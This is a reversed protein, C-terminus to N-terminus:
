VSRPCLPQIKARAQDGSPERTAEAPLSLTTRTHDGLVNAQSYQESGTCLAECEMFVQYYRGVVLRRKGDHETLTSQTRGGPLSGISATELFLGSVKLLFWIWIYNHFLMYRTRRNM